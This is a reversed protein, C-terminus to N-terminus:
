PSLSRSELPNLLLLDPATYDVNLLNSCIIYAFLAKSHLVLFILSIAEAFLTSGSWAWCVTLGSWSCFQKVSQHCEQFIFKYFMYDLTWFQIKFNLSYSFLTVFYIHWVSDLIALYLFKSNGFRKTLASLAGWRKGMHLYELTYFTTQKSATINLGSLSCQSPSSLTFGM